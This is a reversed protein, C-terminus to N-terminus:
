SHSDASGSFLQTQVKCDLQTSIDRGCGGDSGGFFIATHGLLNQARAFVALINSKELFDRSLM